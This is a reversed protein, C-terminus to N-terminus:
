EAPEGAIWFIPPKLCFACIWKDEYTLEIEGRKAFVRTVMELALHMPVGHLNVVRKRDCECTVGGEWV